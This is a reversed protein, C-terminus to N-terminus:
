YVSRLLRYCKMNKIINAIFSKSKGYSGYTTTAIFCGGGEAGGADSESTGTTSSYSSVSSIGGPDVIVGNAVGDSDGYDGDKIELIVSQGDDNFTTYQTYNEWGNITDYKYFYDSAFVGASFYVRIRAVAGPQNLLLRCSFLGYIIDSPRNETDAIDAPDITDLEEIATISDTLKEVGIYVSSDVSQVCKITEPEYIDPTGNLNFDVSNDVEWDDPIGDENLDLYFQATTFEIESSWESAESYVDYFRVRAYYTHNQKLIMHPVPLITLFESTTTEFVLNTFNSEESIQWQSKKHSDGNPDSFSDTTMTLPVDVDSQGSSPHAIVPRDPPQNSDPVDIITVQKTSARTVSNHTYSAQITLLQNSSVESTTLVGSSNITAYASNESWAAISTVTQTTDDSFLATATYAANSNEYLSDNGSITVSILDASSPPQYSAENSYDSEDDTIYATVVFFYAQGDNLNHLTYEPSDPNSLTGIPVTIPSNGETLGTGDYPEGSTGTKYYIKYGALDTETNPDWALNADAAQVGSVALPSIIFLAVFLTVAAVLPLSIKKEAKRRIHLIFM